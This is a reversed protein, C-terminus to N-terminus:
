GVSTVPEPHIIINEQKIIKGVKKSLLKTRFIPITFYFTSGKGKKSEVWIRGGHAKVIESAIYLGMGLGPFVEDKSTTLRIFSQFVKDQYGEPIGLGFDQVAITVYDKDSELKVLIKEKNPSYKIANGLLNNIVQGIRNADIFVKDICSGVISIKHKFTTKQLDGVSETILQQINVVKKEYDLKGGRIKIVDLLDQTLRTLKNVQDDVRSLYDSAVKDNFSNFKKQLLQTFAKISTIPTKLEHGAVAILMERQKEYLKSETIDHFYWVRGYYKKEISKIPTTYIEYIKGNKLYVEDTTEMYKNKDLKQIMKPFRSPHTLNKNIIEIVESYSYKEIQSSLIEWMELFRSNYSIIKGKESLLLIGEVSAEGQLELLNKQFRLEEELSKRKTIDRAISAVGIMKGQINKIPGVSVSINILEGRKNLRKTEFNKIFEGKKILRTNQVVEKTRDKPVVLFISKGIAEKATYGYLNEAGTNWNTIINNNDTIIIADTASHIVAAFKLLSEELKKRESIDEASGQYYEIGGKEDRIVQVNERVYIEKGTRTIWRDELGKIENKKQIYKFFKERNYVPGFNKKNLNKKQLVSFNPFELMKLMTKNAMLFKGSLTTHYMGIPINNFLNRYRQESEKLAQETRKQETIDEITGEYYLIKGQKNKVVRANERIFIEARDKRICLSELGKIEGNTELMKKFESRKYTPGFFCKELNISRFEEFSNFGLMKYMAPNAMLIKGDSTTRYIGMPVNDFLAKFQEETEQLSKEMKVKESVDRCLCIVGIVKNKDDRYSGKTCIYTRKEGRLTLIEEKVRIKGSKLVALDDTHISTYDKYSMLDKDKRGIIDKMPLGLIKAAAMNVMIYRGELDKVFVGDSNEDMLSFLLNSNKSFENEINSYKKLFNKDGIKLFPFKLFM